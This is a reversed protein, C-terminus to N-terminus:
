EDCDTTQVRFTVIMWSWKGEEGWAKAHQVMVVWSRISHGRLRLVEWCAWLLLKTKGPLLLCCRKQLSLNFLQPMSYQM